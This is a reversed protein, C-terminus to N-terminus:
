EFFDGTQRQFYRPHFPRLRRHLRFAWAPLARKWMARPRQARTDSAALADRSHTWLTVYDSQQPTQEFIKCIDVRKACVLLYAPGGGALEVRSRVQEPDAVQYWVRKWPTEFLAARVIEFGNAPSLARFFLEPSLQYFGHGLLNNAPTITVLHGGCEVAEMCNKLGTTYYFVHELSGGDVVLSYRERLADPLPANMDHLMTAAEYASFDLSDVSGAGLFKLLPEVFGRDGTLLAGAQSPDSGYRRLIAALEAESVHLGQRGITLVRDMCLGARRASLLFEVTAADFGM